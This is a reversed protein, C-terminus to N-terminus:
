TVCPLIRPPASRAQAICIRKWWTSTHILSNEFHGYSYLFYVIFFVVFTGATFSFLFHSAVHIILLKAQGSDLQKWCGHFHLRIIEGSTLICMRPIESKM